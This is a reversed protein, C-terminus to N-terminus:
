DIGPFEQLFRASLLGRSFRGYASSVSVLVTEGAFRAYALLFALLSEKVFRPFPLLFAM